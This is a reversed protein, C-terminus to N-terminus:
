HNLPFYTGNIQAPINLQKQYEDEPIFDSGYTVDQEQSLNETSTLATHRNEPQGQIQNEFDNEIVQDKQNTLALEFKKKEEHLQQKVSDAIETLYAYLQTVFM